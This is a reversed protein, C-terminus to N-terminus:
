VQWYFFYPYIRNWEPRMIQILTAYIFFMIIIIFVIFLMLKKDKINKIANPLYVISFVLFFDSVRDLLNFRFSLFTISVSIILFLFMLQGDNADEEKRVQSSFESLLVGDQSKDNLKYYRTFAGLMIISLGVLMNMISALRVEGNLYASGRYYQYTPFINMLINLITPFSVYLSISGIMFTLVLKYTVQLKRMPWAILFVIATRHFLFAFFVLILFRILRKQKLFDYALLILVIAINLRITNMTMSFYGITFFLYVSLWPIKSYKKIFRMFGYMIFCSTVVLIIQSNHSILSLLKNLYIYGLEFRPSFISIDSSYSISEFLRLYVITDNGVVEARLAAIMTFLGFTLYLYIKKIESNIKGTGLVLGSLLIYLILLYYLWM